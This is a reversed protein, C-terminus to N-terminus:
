GEIRISEVVEDLLRLSPAFSDPIEGSLQTEMEVAYNMFNDFFATDLVVDDPHPLSPHNVPLIVSIYYQGNETFGQFTYFMHPWGIPYAAQGYQSIFRVGNGNKFEIFEAQSLLFQAANFFEAVIIGEHELDQANIADQLGNLRDGIFPNITQFEAVPFIRITPEHYADVLVWSSFTFRIHDPISWPDNPEGEGPISEANVTDALSDDYAFSVGQFIIDPELAEETETPPLEAESAALTAAVSTAVTDVPDVAPEATEGTLACALSLTFLVSIIMTLQSRKSLM